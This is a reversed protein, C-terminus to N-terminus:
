PLYNKLILLLCCTLILPHATLTWQLLLPSSNVAISYSESQMNRVKTLPGGIWYFNVKKHPWGKSFFFSWLLINYGIYMKFFSAVILPSPVRDESDLSALESRKAIVLKECGSFQNFCTKRHCRCSRSVLEFVDIQEHGKLKAKGQFGIARGQAHCGSDEEDSALLM